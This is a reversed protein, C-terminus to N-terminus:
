AAERAEATLRRHMSDATAVARDFADRAEESMAPFPGYVPIECARCATVAEWNTLHWQFLEIAAPGPDVYAPGRVQRQELHQLRKLRQLSMTAGLHRRGGRATTRPSRKM